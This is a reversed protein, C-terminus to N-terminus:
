PGTGLSGHTRWTGGAVRQGVELFGQSDVGNNAVDLTYEVVQAYRAYPTTSKDAHYPGKALTYNSGCSHLYSALAANATSGSGEAACFRSAYGSERIAPVVWIV